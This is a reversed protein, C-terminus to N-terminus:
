SVSTTLLVRGISGAIAVDFAAAADELDFTPGVLADLPLRGQEFLRFYTPFDVHPRMRGMNCGIVKKASTILEFVPVELRATPSPLGMLTVVGTHAAVAIALEMAPLTGASEFTYDYGAPELERLVEAEPEVADTAGVQLALKRRDPDPDVAVVRAAGSVLAALVVSIGVGGCGFVAVTSGPRVQAEHLVAGMGTAVSCGTLAAVTLPVGAPVPALATESLV